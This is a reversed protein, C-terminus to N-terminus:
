KKQAPAPPAAAAAARAQALNDKLFQNQPELAVSKEMVKVASALDNKAQYAFSMLSWSLASKPYYELNLNLWALADDPRGSTALKFAYAALGGLRFSPNATTTPLDGDSFDYVQSGYYKKRLERYQAMAADRGKAQATRDLEDGLPRPPTTMGRHCNMCQIQVAKDPSKGVAAPVLANISRVMLLMQRATRKTQKDDLSFDLNEDGPKPTVGPPLKAPAHCHDCGVGLAAVFGEMNAILEEPKIDKPFVQLNKPVLPPPPAPAQEAATASLTLLLAGAFVGVHRIRLIGANM